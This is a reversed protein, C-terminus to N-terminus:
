QRNDIRKTKESAKYLGIESDEFLDEERISFQLSGKEKNYIPFYEKQNIVAIITEM